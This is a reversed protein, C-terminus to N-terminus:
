NSQVWGPQSLYTRVFGKRDMWLSGDEWEAALYSRPVDYRASISAKIGGKYRHLREINTKKNGIAKSLDAPHVDFSISRVAKPIKHDLIYLFWKLYIRSEVLEGFAPHYPGERYGSGTDLEENAQLGTRIVPIDNNEFLMKLVSVREVAEEITLPVYRGKDLLGELPSGKLVLTPYIRVLDPKLSIMDLATKVSKDFTDEPLGTMMQLGLSFGSEKILSAASFIDAATHGRGSAYLVDDDTSQIGLEITTVNFEKLMSLIDKSIYDPRTSIRIGFALKGDIYPRALSLIEQQVETSLCTFSGGYFAIEHCPDDKTVSSMGIELQSAIDAIRSKEHLGTVVHQNCFVCQHKCGLMPIFVPAIRTNRNPSNKSLRTHPM